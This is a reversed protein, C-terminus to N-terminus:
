CDFKLRVEKGNRSWVGNDKMDCYLRLKDGLGKRWKCLYKGKGGDYGSGSVEGVIM